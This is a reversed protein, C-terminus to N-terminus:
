LDEFHVTIQAYKCRKYFEHKFLPKFSQLFNVRLFFFVSKKVYNKVQLTNFFHCLNNTFQMGNKLKMKPFPM